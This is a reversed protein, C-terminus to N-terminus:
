RASGSFAQVAGAGAPHTVQSRRSPDALDLRAIEQAYLPNHPYEKALQALLERARSIDQERLATVALMLRALPALYRGKEAALKLTRIGVARDTEAGAFRLLWRLPAPKASLIYNEVGVALWADYCDPNSALLRQAAARSSGMQRLSAVYRKEILAMYDASVGGAMISALQSNTDNPASSILKRAVALAGEFNRKLAPDPVLEHDTIFHRDHVFFESQLIHLRDFESFLYAAAESVPGMPDSPHLHMWEQFTRHAEAFQLNYM